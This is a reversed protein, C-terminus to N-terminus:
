DSFDTRVHEEWEEWTGTPNESLWAAMQDLEDDTCRGDVQYGFVLANKIWANIM